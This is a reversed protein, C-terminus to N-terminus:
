LRNQWLVRGTDSDVCVAHLMRIFLLRNKVQEFFQFDFDPNGRSFVIKFADTQRAENVDFFIKPIEAQWREQLMGGEPYHLRSIRMKADPAVSGRHIIYFSDDDPQLLQNHGGFHGEESIERWWLERVTLENEATRLDTQVKSLANQEATQFQRRGTPDSEKMAALQASLQGQRTKAQQLERGLRQLIRPKNADCLFEGELFSLQPDVPISNRTITKRLDNSLYFHASRFEVGDSFCNLTQHTEALSIVAPLKQITFNQPDVAWHYGQMDTIILKDRREDYAFFSNIQSWKIKALNNQLAPEAALIQKQSVTVALTRPNRGHLGLAPDLSYLWLKGNSIGLFSVPNEKERGFEIRALLQGNELGYASLRTEAYGYISTFGRGSRKGIAQFISEHAILIYGQPGSYVAAKVIDDAECKAMDKHFCGSMILTGSLLAVGMRRIRWASKKM